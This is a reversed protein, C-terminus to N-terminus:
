EWSLYNQAKVTPNVLGVKDINKGGSVYLITEILNM